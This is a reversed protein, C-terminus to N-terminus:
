SATIFPDWNIFYTVPHLKGVTVKIQIQYTQSGENMAQGIWYTGDPEGHLAPQQVPDGAATFVGTQGRGPEVTFGTIVVSDDSTGLANIPVSHFGILDGNNCMTHLEMGAEDRSGNAVQNDMMYVGQSINNGHQAAVYATDVAVTLAVRPKLGTGAQSSFVTQSENFPIM